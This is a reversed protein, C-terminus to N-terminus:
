LRRTCDRKVDLSQLLNGRWRFSSSPHRSVPPQQLLHASEVREHMHCVLTPAGNGRLGILLM